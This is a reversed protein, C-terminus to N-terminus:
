AEKARFAQNDYPGFGETAAAEQQGADAVTRTEKGRYLTKPYEHHIHLIVKLTIARPAHPDKALDKMAQHVREVEEPLITAGECITIPTEM